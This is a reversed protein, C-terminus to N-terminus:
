EVNNDSSVSEVSAPNKQRGLLDQVAEFVRSSSKGDDFGLFKKVYRKRADPDMEFDSLTLNPLDRIVNPIDMTTSVGKFQFPGGAKRNVLIEYRVDNFQKTKSWYNRIDPSICLHPVNCYASETVAWSYFDICISAVSMVELITCPYFDEDYICLDAADETYPPIPDKKRSKVLLFADNNDCFKKISAVVASDNWGRMVHSTYKLKRAKAISLLQRVGNRGGYIQSGWFSDDSSTTYPLLLVVKQEASLGLKHRIVHPDIMTLQDLQPFGTVVPDEFYESLQDNHPANPKMKNFFDKALEAWYESYICSLDVSSLGERTNAEFYDFNHQLGIWKTRTVPTDTGFILVPTSLSIVADVRCEEIWAYLEKASSYKKILPQGHRFTPISDFDPFEYSKTGNTPHCWDHWCEVQWGCRLFEDIIPSLLRYIKKREILFAIKPM